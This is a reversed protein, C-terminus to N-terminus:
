LVYTGTKTVRMKNKRQYKVIIKKKIKVARVHSIGLKQGIERFTYGETLLSFVEKERKTMGNNRIENITIKRGIRSDLPEQTDPLLDNLRGSHDGCPEELSVLVAKERCKKLTNLIHFECGKVVYAENIGSPLGDKFNRWLHLCMEQYLDNRDYSAGRIEYRSAIKKLTPAMKTFLAEFNM